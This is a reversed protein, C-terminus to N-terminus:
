GSGETRNLFAVAPYVPLQRALYAERQAATLPLPGQRHMRYFPYLWGPLLCLLSLAVGIRRYRQLVASELVGAAAIGLLPLIPVLYRGDAPLRLCLVTYLAALG